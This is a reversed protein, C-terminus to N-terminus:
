IKLVLEPHDIVSNYVANDPASDFGTLQDSAILSNGLSTM